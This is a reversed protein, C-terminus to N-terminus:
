DFELIENRYLLTTVLDDYSQSLSPLLLITKGEEEFMAM